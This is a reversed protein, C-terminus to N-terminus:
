EAANWRIALGLALRVIRKVNGELASGEGVGDGGLEEGVLRLVLKGVREGRPDFRM